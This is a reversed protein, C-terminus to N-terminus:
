DRGPRLVISGAIAGVVAGVGLLAGAIGVREIRRIRAATRKRAAKRDAARQKRRKKGGARDKRRGDRADAPGMADLGPLVKGVASAAEARKSEAM